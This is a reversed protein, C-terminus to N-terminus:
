YDAKYGTTPNPNPGHFDWFYDLCREWEAPNYEGDGITQKVWARKMEAQIEDVRADDCGWNAELIDVREEVCQADPDVRSFGNQRM